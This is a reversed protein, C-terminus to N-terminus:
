RRSASGACGLRRAHGQRRHRHRHGHLGDACTPASRDATGQAVDRLSRPRAVTSAPRAKGGTAGAGAGAGSGAGRGRGCRRRGPRGRRGWRGRGCGGGSGSGRARGQAAARTRWRRGRRGWRRGRRRWRRWRRVAVPGAPTRPGSRCRRSGLRARERRPDASAAHGRLQLPGAARAGLHRRGGALGPGHRGPLVDPRRLAPREPRREPRDGHVDADARRRPRQVPLAAAVQGDGYGRVMAVRGPAVEGDHLDEGNPFYRTHHDYDSWWPTLTGGLARIGAVTGTGVLLRGSDVWSPTMSRAGVLEYEGPASGDARVIRVDTSTEFYGNLVKGYVVQFAVHRGDPSVHPAFPGAQLAGPSIENLVDGNQRLRVMPAGVPAARMAVITGDDAQSPSAYPSAATGDMTVRYQGTGDPRSLWVDHDKIFVLSDAAAPAALGLTLTAALAALAACRRGSSPADHM